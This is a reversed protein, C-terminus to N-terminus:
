LWPGMNPHELICKVGKMSFVIAKILPAIHMEFCGLGYSGPLALAAFAMHFHQIYALHPGHINGHQRHYGYTDMQNINWM